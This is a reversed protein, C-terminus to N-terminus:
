AWGRSVAVPEVGGTGVHGVGHAAAPRARPRRGAPRSSHRHAVQAEGVPHEDDQGRRDHHGPRQRQDPGRGAGRVRRVLSCRVQDGGRVAVAQRFGLAAVPELPDGHRRRAARGHRDREPDEPRVAPRLRAEQVVLGLLQVEEDDAVVHVDELVQVRGQDTVRPVDVDPQVVAARVAHEGLEDREVGPVGPVRHVTVRTSSGAWGVGIRGWSNRKAM